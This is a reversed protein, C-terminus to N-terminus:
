SISVENARVKLMKQDAQTRRQVNEYYEKASSLRRDHEEMLAVARGEMRHDLEAIEARRKSGEEEM